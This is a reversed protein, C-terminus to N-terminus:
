HVSHLEKKLETIDHRLIILDDLVAKEKESAGLKLMEIDAIELETLGESMCYLVFKLLPVSPVLDEKMIVRFKALTNNFRKVGSADILDHLYKPNLGM